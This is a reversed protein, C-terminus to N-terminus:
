LLSVCLDEMEVTVHFVEDGISPLEDVNYIVSRLFKSLSVSITALHVLSIMM